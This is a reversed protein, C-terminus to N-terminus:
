WPLLANRMAEDVAITMRMVEASDWRDLQSMEDQLFELFPPLLDPDIGLEFRSERTDPFSSMPTAPQRRDGHPALALHCSSGADARGQPRLRHRRSASGGDGRRRERSGDDPDRSYPSSGQPGGPGAGTRGNGDMKLDTLVMAVDHDAM